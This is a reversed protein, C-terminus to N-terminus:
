PDGFPLGLVFKMRGASSFPSFRYGIVIRSTPTTIKIKERNGPKGTTSIMRLSFTLSAQNCMLCGSTRCRGLVFESGPEGILVEAGLLCEYLISLLSYLINM